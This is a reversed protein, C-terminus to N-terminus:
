KSCVDYKGFHATWHIIWVSDTFTFIIFNTENPCCPSRWRKVETISNESLNLEKLYFLEGMSSIARIRNFQFNLKVLRSADNFANAEISEINNDAFNIEVLKRLSQMDSRQVRAIENHSLDIQTISNNEDFWGSDVARLSADSLNLRMLRLFPKFGANSISVHGINGLDLTEVYRLNDNNESELFLKNLFQKIEM